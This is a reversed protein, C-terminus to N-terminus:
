QDLVEYPYIINQDLGRGELEEETGGWWEKKRVEHTRKKRKFEHLGTPGGTHAHSLSFNFTLNRM